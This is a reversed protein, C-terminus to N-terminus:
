VRWRYAAVKKFRFSKLARVYLENRTLGSLKTSYVVQARFVTYLPFVDYADLVPQDFESM